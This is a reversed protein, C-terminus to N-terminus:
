RTALAAARDRAGVEDVGPLGHLMQRLAADSTGAGSAVLDAADVTWGAAAPQAISEIGV